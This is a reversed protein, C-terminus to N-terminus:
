KIAIDNAPFAASSTSLFSSSSIIEVIDQNIRFNVPSGVRWDGFRTILNWYSEESIYISPHICKEGCNCLLMAHMTKYKYIFEQKYVKNIVNM